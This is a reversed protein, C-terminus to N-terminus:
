STSTMSHLNYISNTNLKGCLYSKAPDVCFKNKMARRGLLMKFRMNDRNTLTMEIIMQKNGLVFSTEIVYRLEEHGGSDKVLRKDLIPAECELIFTNNKQIPHMNFSVFDNNNRTFAKINFAHLASTKAGTDVKAKIAPINLEPLAGWERWGITTLLPTASDNM